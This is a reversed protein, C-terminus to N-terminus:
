ALRKELDRRVARPDGTLQLDTVRLVTWGALQLTRDRLRDIEFAQPSGHTAYVDLEVILGHEPWVCDVEYGKVSINMQPRPLGWEDILHLFRAELESRTIAPPRAILTRLKPTGARRPYRELIEAISPGIWGDARELMRTLSPLALSPALDLMTRAHVTVPIGNNETVEDPPLDAYHFRIGPRHSRRSPITVHSLPGRGARLRQLNAASWHSLAASPGAALVAAM